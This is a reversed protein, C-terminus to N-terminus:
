GAAAEHLIAWTRPGVIGDVKLEQERQFARVAKLTRRGFIGDEEIEHGGSSLLGQLRLVPEGRDMLRLVPRRRDGRDDKSRRADSREPSTSPALELSGHADLGLVDRYAFVPCTKSSVECHGHFTVLSDYAVDIESCLRILTDFQAKTFREEALGHLCIAITDTNNGAQAAPIKELSRGEQLTGDKRVFFHYGVDEWGRGEVHWEQMVSVDDHDPNDSASCHIFVREVNRAPVSFAM